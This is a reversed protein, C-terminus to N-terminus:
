HGRGFRFPGFDTLEVQHQQVIRSLDRLKHFDDFVIDLRYPLRGGLLLSVSCAGVVSQVLSFAQVEEEKKNM